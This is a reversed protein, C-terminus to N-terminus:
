VLLTLPLMTKASRFLSISYNSLTYVVKKAKIDSDWKKKFIFTKNRIFSLLTWTRHCFTGPFALDHLLLIHFSTLSEPFPITHPRNLCHSSYKRRRVNISCTWQQLAQILKNRCGCLSLWKLLTNVIYATHVARAPKMSTFIWKRKQLYIHFNYRVIIM